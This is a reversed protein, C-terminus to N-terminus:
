FRFLGHCFLLLLIYIIVGCMLCGGIPEPYSTHEDTRKQQQEKM